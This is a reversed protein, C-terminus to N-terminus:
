VLQVRPPQLRGPAPPVLIPGPGELRIAIAAALMIPWCCALAVVAVLYDEVEKLIAYGGVLPRRAVQLFSYGDMNRLQVEKVKLWSIDMLLLIEAPISNLKQMMLSIREHARMPLAVVIADIHTSRSIEILSDIGKIVPIGCITKECREAREDFIGIIEYFGRPIRPNTLHEVAAVGEAGAGLIAVRHTLVGRQHLRKVALHAASRCLAIGISATAMWQLFWATNDQGSHFVRAFLWIAASSAILGSFISFTEWQFSFQRDWRYVRKNGTIARYALIAVFSLLMSQILSMQTRAVGAVVGALVLSLADCVKVCFDILGHTIISSGPESHATSRATIAASTNM